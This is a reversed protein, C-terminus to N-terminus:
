SLVGFPTYTARAFDMLQRYTPQVTGAEWERYKPFRRTLTEVDKGSREQAWRLTAPNVPMRYPSGVAKGGEERGDRRAQCIRGM